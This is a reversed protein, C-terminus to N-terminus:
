PQRTALLLSTEPASVGDILRAADLVASFGSLDRTVLEAILDWRGNTTHVAELEPFSCLARSVAEGKRSKVAISLIARVQGSTGEAPSRLAFGLIDGRDRM